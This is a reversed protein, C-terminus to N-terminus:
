SAACLFALIVFSREQVFHVYCRLLFSAYVVEPLGGDLVFFGCYYLDDVSPFLSVAM